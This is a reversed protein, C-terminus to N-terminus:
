QMKSNKCLIRLQDLATIVTKQRIIERSGHMRYKKVIISDFLKIGIYVLGVPKEPTGGDPGAIGTTAIGADTKLNKCLGVVMEKATEPSVAGYQALTTTQVNLLSEKLENSYVIYGGKYFSSVGPIDTVKGAILGGTCSEATSLTWQSRIFIDSIEEAPHTFGPLLISAKYYKKIKKIAETVASKTKGSIMLECIGPNARFAIDYNEYDIGLIESIKKQFDSEPIGVAYISEFITKEKIQDIIYPLVNKEFMPKLEHTPGPLLFISYEGTILKIGPATGNPNSLIESNEPIFTQKLNVKTISTSNRSKLFEKLGHLAQESQIIKKNFFESIVQVTIDDTTPGLGGTLIIINSKIQCYKLADKIEEVNDKVTLQLEPIIGHKLLEAGMYAPHTNMIKGKLLEDGISILSVALKKM